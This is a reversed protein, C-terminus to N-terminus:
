IIDLIQSNNVLGYIINAGVLVTIAGVIIQLYKRVKSFRFPISLTGSIIAMGLISGLGFVLLVLFIESIDNITAATLAILSGSGALGHLCGILYSRHTHTHNQNHEHPHTHIIGDHEHPHTHKMQFFKKYMSIGLIILMVGVLFEFGDFIISPINLALVFVLFSVLLITTTHGFGWIAGLLSNKITALKIRTHKKGVQTMVASMHDPEFAHVIGVLLGTSLLLWINLQDTIELFM